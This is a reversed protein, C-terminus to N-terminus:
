ERNECGPVKCNGTFGSIFVALTQGEIMVAQIDISVALLVCLKCSARGTEGWCSLGEASIIVVKKTWGGYMWGDM